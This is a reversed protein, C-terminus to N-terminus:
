YYASQSPVNFSRKNSDNLTSTENDVNLFNRRSLPTLEAYAYGLSHLPHM